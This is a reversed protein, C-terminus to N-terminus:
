IDKRNTKLAHLVIGTAVSVNISGIIPQGDSSFDKLKVVQDCHELINTKLGHHENGVLLLTPVNVACDTLAVTDPGTATGIIQGINAKWDQLFQQTAERNKLYFIKMLEMAGSSAKSVMPSATACHDSPIVITDVGFYYCSRIIGGMNMPDVIEYPLVWIPPPEVAAARIDDPALNQIDLPDSDMCIGQHPRGLCLQDLHIRSVQEVPIKAEEAMGLINVDPSLTRGRQIFIKHCHRRGQSLAISVPHYGFLVEGKVPYIWNSFVQGYKRGSGLVPRKGKGENKRNGDEAKDNKRSNFKRGDKASNESSEEDFEDTKEQRFTKKDSNFKIGDHSNFNKEKKFKLDKDSRKGRFPRKENSFKFGDDSKSERFRRDEQNFQYNTETDKRDFSKDGNNGRLRHFSTKRQVKNKDVTEEIHSGKGQSESSVIVHDHCHRQKQSLMASIVRTVNVLQRGQVINYYLQRTIASMM